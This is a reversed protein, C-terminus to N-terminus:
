CLIFLVVFDVVVSLCVCFVDANAQRRLNYNNSSTFRSLDTMVLLLLDFGLGLVKRKHNSFQKNVRCIRCIRYNRLVFEGLTIYHGIFSLALLAFSQRLTQSACAPPRPFTSKSFLGEDSKITKLIACSRERSRRETPRKPAQFAREARRSTSKYCTQPFPPPFVRSFRGRRRDRIRASCFGRSSISRRPAHSPSLPFQLEHGSLDTRLWNGFTVLM